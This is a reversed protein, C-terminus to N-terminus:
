VAACFGPHSHLASSAVSPFAVPKRRPAKVLTSALKPKPAFSSCTRLCLQSLGIRRAPYTREDLFETTAVVTAENPSASITSEAPLAAAQERVV